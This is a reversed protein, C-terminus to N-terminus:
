PVLIMIRGVTVDHWHGAPEPSESDAPRTLTMTAPPGFARSLRNVALSLSMPRDRHRGSGPETVALTPAIVTVALAPADELVALSRAGLSPGPTM